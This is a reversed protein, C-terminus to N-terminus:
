MCRKACGCFCVCVNKRTYIPHNQLNSGFWGRTPRSEAGAASSAWPPHQQQRLHRLWSGSAVYWSNLSWLVGFYSVCVTCHTQLRASRTSLFVKAPQQVSCSLSCAMSKILQSNEEEINSGWPFWALNMWLTLSQQSLTGQCGSSNLSLFVTRSKSIYIHTSWGAPAGLFWLCLLMQLGIGRPLPGSLNKYSSFLM